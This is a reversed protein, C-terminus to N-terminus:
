VEKELKAKVVDILKEMKERYFLEFDGQAGQQSYLVFIVDRLRKSPTKNDTAAEKPVDGSQIDNESFLLWGFLRNHKHLMGLDGETAEQTSFSLGYSGDSRSSFRDFTAPLRLM